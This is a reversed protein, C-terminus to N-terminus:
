AASLWSARSVKNLYIDRLVVGPNANTIATASPYAGEFQWAYYKYAAGAGVGGGGFGTTRTM